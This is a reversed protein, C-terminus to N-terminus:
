ARLEAALALTDERAAPYAALEANRRDEMEIFVSHMEPTQMLESFVEAMTLNSRPPPCM